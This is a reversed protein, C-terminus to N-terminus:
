LRLFLFSGSSNNSLIFELWRLMLNVISILGFFDKSLLIRLVELWIWHKIYWFSFFYCNVPIQFYWFTMSPVCNNSIDVTCFLYATVKVTFYRYFLRFIDFSTIRGFENSRHYISTSSFFFLWYNYWLHKIFSFCHM